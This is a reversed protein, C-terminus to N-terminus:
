ESERQRLKREYSRVERQIRDPVYGGAAFYHSGGEMDHLRFWLRGNVRIVELDRSLREVMEGNELELQFSFEAPPSSTSPSQTM